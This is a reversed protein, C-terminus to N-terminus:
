EEGIFYWKGKIKAVVVKVKEEEDDGDEDIEFRITYRRAATVDKEDIDYSDELTEALEELDDKDYKKSDGDIKYSKYEIDSDELEEFSEELMEEYDQDLYELYEEMSKIMDEHTIEVIAKADYKVMANAYKKAVSKSPNVFLLAFLLVVVLVVVGTGIMLKKDNKINTTYYNLGGKVKEVLNNANAKVAETNIMPQTNTTEQVVNNNQNEM